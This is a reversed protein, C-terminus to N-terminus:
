QIYFKFVAEHQYSQGPYIIPNPFNRHNAADPYNQTELCFAGHKYYNGNKGSVTQLTSTDGKFDKPDSPIFNSTYFQVGPQDSYVELTRGTPPHNVRAVFLLKDWIGKNVCYNHDYGPNEPINHIVDGLIKPIQLDFITGSVPLIKGTPIANADVETIANANISVVHKYLEEAGKNDGALNFYSHNTLNVYTPKTTTAKYVMKFENEATLEFTLNVLLNGPFGEEGDASDYSMIVKSGVAYAEWLVKDFGKFGGHLQHEGNLNASVQYQQGDISFKAYGIRNAVRGITAGFYPNATSQYGAINNFGLVIEDIIGNKDPIKISTITAGYTIVQVAINNRNTWTFRKVPTKVGDEDTIYDFVDQELKVLSAPIRTCAM